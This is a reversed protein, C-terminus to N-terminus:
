EGSNILWNTLRKLSSSFFLHGCVVLQGEDNAICADLDLLTSTNRGTDNVCLASLVYSLSENLRFDTCLTNLDNALAFVAFGLFLTFRIFHMSLIKFLKM